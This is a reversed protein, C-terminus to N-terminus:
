PALRCALCLAMPAGTEDNVAREWVAASRTQFLGSLLEASAAPDTNFIDAIGSDLASKPLYRGAFWGFGRLPLSIDIARASGVATCNRDWILWM